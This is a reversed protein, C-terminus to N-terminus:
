KIDLLYEIESDPTDSFFAKANELTPPSTWSGIHAQGPRNKEMIMLQWAGELSLVVAVHAHESEQAQLKVGACYIWEGARLVGHRKCDGNKTQIALQNIRGFAHVDNDLQAIFGNLNASVSLTAAWQEINKKELYAGVLLWQEALYDAAGWRKRAADLLKNDLWAANAIAYKAAEDASWDLNLVDKLARMKVITKSQEKAEEETTPHDSIVIDHLVHTDNKCVARVESEIKIHWTYTM